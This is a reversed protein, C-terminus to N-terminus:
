AEDGEKGHNYGTGVWQPSGTVTVLGVEKGFWSRQSWNKGLNSSIQVTGSVYTCSYIEYVCGWILMCGFWIVPLGLSDEVGGKGQARGEYGTGQWTQRQGSAKAMECKVTEQGGTIGDREELAVLAILVCGLVIMDARVKLALDVKADLILIRPM